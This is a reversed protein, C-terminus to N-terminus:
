KEGQDGVDRGGSFSVDVTKDDNVKVSVGGHNGDNDHAEASIGVTITAQEGGFHIDIKGEVKGGADMPKFKGLRDGFIDATKDEVM